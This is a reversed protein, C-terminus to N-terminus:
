KISKKLPPIIDHLEEEGKSLRDILKDALNPKTDKNAM